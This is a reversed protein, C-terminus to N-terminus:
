AVTAQSDGTATNLRSHSHACVASLQDDRDTQWTIAASMNNTQDRRHTALTDTDNKGSV